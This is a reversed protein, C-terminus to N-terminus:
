FWTRINGNDGHGTIQNEISIGRDRQVELATMEEAINAKDSDIASQLLGGVKRRSGSKYFDQGVAENLWERSANFQKLQKFYKGTVYSIIFMDLLSIPCATADTTFTQETTVRLRLELNSEAPRDLVINTGFHLGFEPWGKQNDEPNIVHRDWWTRNKMKLIDNLDGSAQVIRATVITIINTTGSIDVSTADETITFDSPQSQADDFPHEILAIKLAEDCLKNELEQNERGVNLEVSQKIQGRTEAM